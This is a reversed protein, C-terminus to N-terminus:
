QTVRNPAIGDKLLKARARKFYREASEAKVGLKQALKEYIEYRKMHPACKRVFDFSQQERESLQSYEINSAQKKDRSLRQLFGSELIEQLISTLDTRGLGMKAVYAAAGLRRCTEGEAASDLGTVVIHIAQPFTEIVKKVVTLRIEPPGGAFRSLGPDFIVLDFKDAQPIGFAATLTSVGQVVCREFAKKVEDMLAFRM